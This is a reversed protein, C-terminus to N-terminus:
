SPDVVEEDKEGEEEKAVHIDGMLRELRQAYKPNKLLQYLAEIVLRNSSVTEDATNVDVEVDYIDRDVWKLVLVADNQNIEINGRSV